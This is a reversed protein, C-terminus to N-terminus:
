NYTFFPGVSLLHKIYHKLLILKIQFLHLVYISYLSISRKKQYVSTLFKDGNNTICLDLLLHQSHMQKEITFKLNSHQQNIFVSFKDANSESNLLCIIVDM